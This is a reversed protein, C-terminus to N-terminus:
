QSYVKDKFPQVGIRNFTDIFAEDGDRKDLYETLINRIVAPVEERAFSPGLISAIAANEDAAGGVSIQYWEEGKKDVGLIGINGVHHHGCANM